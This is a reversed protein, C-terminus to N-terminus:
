FMTTQTNFLAQLSIMFQRCATFLIDNILSYNCVNGLKQSKYASTESCETQEMQIPSQSDDLLFFVVNLILRFYSILFWLCPSRAIIWMNLFIVRFSAQNWSEAANHMVTLNNRFMSLLSDIHAAHLEM